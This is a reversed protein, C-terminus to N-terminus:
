NAPAALSDSGKISVNQLGLTSIIKELSHTEEMLAQVTNNILTEGQSNGAAILMDYASGQQVLAEMALDTTEVKANMEAHIAPANARLFTELSPGSVMTGNAHVYRGQWLNRIGRNNYYHSWLTQDSFGDQEAEPDHSLLALRLNKGALEGYALSGMGTLQTALGGEDGTAMLAEYARGGSQWSQVMEDLDSVLLHTASELYTRRRECHSHTCSALDYDTWPREGAGAHTGHLDQGWLLFEIVHYGTAVNTDVGDINQLTEALFQPSLNGADVSIGGIDLLPNAIVNATYFNNNDSKTGYSAAVYDILGADLPWSNVRPDWEDVVPNGCRFVETQLYPIRAARWAARASALSAAAPHALFQQVAVELERGTLLADGYSAQAIAVYTSILAAATPATQQPEVRAPLPGAPQSHPLSNVSPSQCGSLCASLLAAQAFAICCSRRAMITM